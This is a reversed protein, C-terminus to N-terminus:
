GNLEGRIRNIIYDAKNSKDSYFTILKIGANECINRVKKDREKRDPRNHTSDNIEILLLPEFNQNFIGFDINRYLTRKM